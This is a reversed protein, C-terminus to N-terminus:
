LRLIQDEPTSSDLHQDMAADGKATPSDGDTVSV